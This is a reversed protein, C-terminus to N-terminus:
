PGSGASERSAPIELRVADSWLGDIDYYARADAHFVHILVDGADILVWQSTDGGEVGLVHVKREKLRSLIADTIALVQRDNEGSLLLFYDAISSRGELDILAPAGAKKALGAEAALLAVEKGALHGDRELREEAHEKALAKGNRM